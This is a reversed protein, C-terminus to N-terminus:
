RGRHEPVQSGGFLFRSPNRELRDIVRRMDRLTSRGEVAFNEIQRVGSDARQNLNDALRRFSQVAERAEAVLEKGDAGVIEDVRAVLENLRSAVDAADNVFRDVQESNKALADSFTEINKLSTTVAEENAEVLADLREFLAAGRAAIQKVSEILDQFPNPEAHIVPVEGKGAVEAIRKAGPSGGMMQLVTGGTLGITEIRAATDAKVPATRDVYIRAIVRGPHEEDLALSGVEGIKIGNFLVAAGKELGTVSADFVVDIPQRGISQDFRAIWLVFGFAGLIVILTFLGILVHNAKTEM